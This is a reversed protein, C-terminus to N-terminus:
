PIPRGDLLADIQEPTLEIEISDDTVDARLENAVFSGTRLLPDVDCIDEVEVMSSFTPPALLEQATLDISIEISPKMIRDGHRQRQAFAALARRPSMSRLECWRRVGDSPPSPSPGFCARFKDTRTLSKGIIRRPILEAHDRSCAPVREGNGFGPANREGRLLENRARARRAVSRAEDLEDPLQADYLHVRHIDQHARM